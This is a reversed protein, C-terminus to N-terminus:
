RTKTEGLARTGAGQLPPLDRRRQGAAEGSFPLAEAGGQVRWGLPLGVIVAAGRLPRFWRKMGPGVFTGSGTRRAMFTGICSM